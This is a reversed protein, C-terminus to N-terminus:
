SLKDGKLRRTWQDQHIAIADIISAVIKLSKPTLIQTAATIRQLYRRTAPRAGPRGDYGLLENPTIRLFRCIRLLLAIDRKAPGNVYTAYCTPSMGLHRAIQAESLKLQRGRARLRSAFSTM